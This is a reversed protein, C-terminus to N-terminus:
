LLLITLIGTNAGTVIAVQGTLDPISKEVSFIPRPSTYKNTWGGILESLIAPFAIVLLAFLTGIITTANYLISSSNESSTKKAIAGTRMM